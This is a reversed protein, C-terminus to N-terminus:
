FWFISHIYKCIKSIGFHSADLGESARIVQDAFELDVRDIFDFIFCFSMSDQWTLFDGRIGHTSYESRYGKSTKLRSCQLTLSWSTSVAHICLVYKIVINFYTSHNLTM